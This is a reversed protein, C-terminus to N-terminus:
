KLPQFADPNRPQPRDGVLCADADEEAKWPTGDPKLKARWEGHIKDVVKHEICEWARFAATRFHEQGSVQHANYLGVVAEAQAWCHKNTDALRGLAEAAELILWSGEINHGFSVHDTLSTWDNEFFMNFHSTSNDVIRDMTVELL